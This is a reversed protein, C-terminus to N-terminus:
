IKNSALISKYINILTSINSMEDHNILARKRANMSLRKALQDDAFVQNLYGALMYPADHQYLIGEQNHVLMDPIGGVYSAICPLGLIMAEALSNPSNELVSSCVYVHSKLFQQHMEKESLEGLYVIRNELEYKSILKKIHKIYYGLNSRQYISDEGYINTGSIYVKANPYTKVVEYFAELFYHFGKLPYSAQTFFISYPEVSELNWQGQYFSSRLIENNYHYTAFPNMQSISIRDWTTRGIIHDTAKILEEEVVGKAMLEKKERYLNKLKLRKSLSGKFAIDCSLGALYHKAVSSILGQISLVYPINLHRCQNAVVLAYAYESGYIHVLDPQHEKLYIDLNTAYAQNFSESWPFVYYKILKGELFVPETVTYSPSLVTLDIEPISSLLNSSNFLWGGFPSIQENLIQSAEPLIVNTIWVIKM